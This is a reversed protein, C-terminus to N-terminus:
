KGLPTGPACCRFGIWISADKPSIVEDDEDCTLDLNTAYLSGGRAAHGGDHEAHANLEGVNGSLDYVGTPTVCRPFAGTLAIGNKGGNSASYDNCRGPEFPSGYPFVLVEPQDYKTRNKCASRWEGEDCLHKHANACAKAAQSVTIRTLPTRGPASQAVVTTGTGDAKGNEGPGASAEYRDICGGIPIPAMEAPCSTPVSPPDPPGKPVVWQGGDVQFNPPPATPGPPPENTAPAIQVGPQAVSFEHLTPGSAPATPVPTVAPKDKSDCAGLALGAIAIWHLTGITRM